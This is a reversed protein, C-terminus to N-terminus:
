LDARMLTEQQAYQDDQLRKLRALNGLSRACADLLLLTNSSFQAEAHGSRSGKHSVGRLAQLEVFDAQEPVSGLQLTLGSQELTQVFASTAAIEREFETPQPL